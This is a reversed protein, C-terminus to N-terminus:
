DQKQSLGDSDHNIRYNGIPMLEEDCAESQTRSKMIFSREFNTLDGNSVCASYISPNHYDCGVAVGRMDVFISFCNNEGAIFAGMGSASDIDGEDDWNDWYSLEIKGDSTQNSFDYYYSVFESGVPLIDNEDYKLKWPDMFYKGEINPPNSGTYVKFNRSQLADIDSQDLFVNVEKPVDKIEGDHTVNFNFNIVGFKFLLVVIFILIIIIIVILYIKSIGKKFNSLVEGM